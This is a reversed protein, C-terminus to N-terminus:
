KIPAGSFRNVIWLMKKGKWSGLVWCTVQLYREKIITQEHTIGDLQTKSYIINQEHTITVVSKQSAYCM